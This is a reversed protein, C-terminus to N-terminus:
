PKINKHKSYKIIKYTVPSSAANKQSTKKATVDSEVLVLYTATM